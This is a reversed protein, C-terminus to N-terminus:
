HPPGGPIKRKDRAGRLLEKKFGHEAAHLKAVKRVPLIKQFKKNYEKKLDLEQQDFALEKDIAASIEADSMQEHNKKALIRNQRREKRTEKMKTELENYLPWFSQAETPTLKLEDTLYAVKLAQLRERKSPELEDQGFSLQHTLGVTLLLAVLKKM